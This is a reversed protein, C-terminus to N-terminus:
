TVAEPWGTQRALAVAALQSNVGLKDLVGRVHTRVTAVAVLASASVEDPTSGRVLMTLVQAEPETLRGFTAHLASVDRRHGALVAMLEDRAAPRLTTRGLAADLVYTLLTEFSVAKDFVGAAGRELCRALMVQDDSATIVM